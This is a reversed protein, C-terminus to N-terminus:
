LKIQELISRLIKTTKELSGKIEIILKSKIRTQIIKAKIEKGFRNLYNEKEDSTLTEGKTKVGYLIERVLEETEFVTLNKALVKEYVTAINEIEKLRSIVFLHSLSIDKNYFGDTVIAPLRNLRLFHCLYSPKIAVMKALQYLRLDHDRILSKILNAKVFPDTETKVRAILKEIQENM